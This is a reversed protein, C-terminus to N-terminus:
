NWKVILSALYAEVKAPNSKKLDKFQTILDIHYLSYLVYCDLMDKELMTRAFNLLTDNSMKLMYEWCYAELYKQRTLSNPLVIVGNSDCYNLMKERAEAYYQWMTGKGAVEVTKTSDKEKAKKDARRSASDAKNVQVERAIWHRNFDSGTEECLLKLKYFMGVDPYVRIAEICHKKADTKNNMGWAADVLYKRPELLEPQEDVAEKFYKYADGYDRQAYYADGLYLRAKYYSPHIAIARKYNNVADNYNGSVFSREAQNFFAEAKEPVNTDVPMDYYFARLYISAKASYEAYRQASRCDNIFSNEALIRGIFQTLRAAMKKSGGNVNWSISQSYSLFHSYRYDVMLDWLEGDNLHNTLVPQLTAIAKDYKKKKAYSGSKKIAKTEERTFDQALAHVGFGLLWMAFLVVSFFQKM